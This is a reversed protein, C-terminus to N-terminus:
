PERSATYAAIAVMDDVTLKEVGTKMLASWPGTGKLEDNAAKADQIMANPPGMKPEASTRAGNKFDAMQQVIDAAPVGALPANEPRGKLRSRRTM